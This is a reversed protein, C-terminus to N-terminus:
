GFQDTENELVAIARKYKELRAYDKATPSSIRSIDSNDRLDALKVKRGIPNQASRQVFAEYDEGERKTVTELAALIEEGFGEARLQEFTWPTDEIVDHLVATIREAETQLTLMMRLPHLIYPAGAKDTQGAHAAAAIAIARELTSM